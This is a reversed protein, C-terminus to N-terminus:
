PFIPLALHCHYRREARRRARQAGWRRQSAVVGWLAQQPVGDPDSSQNRQKAPLQRLTKAHIAALGRPIARKDDTATRAGMSATVQTQTNQTAASTTAAGRPTHHATSPHHTTHARNRAAVRELAFGPVRRKCEILRWGDGDGWKGNGPQPAEASRLAATSLRRLPWRDGGSARESRAGGAAASRHFLVFASFFWSM